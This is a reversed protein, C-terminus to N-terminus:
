VATAFNATLQFRPLHGLTVEAHNLHSLRVEGEQEERGVEEKEIREFM